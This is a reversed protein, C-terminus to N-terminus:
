HKEFVILDQDLETESSGGHVSGWLPGACPIMGNTAFAASIFGFRYAVAIEPYQSM